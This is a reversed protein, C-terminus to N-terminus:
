QLPIGNYSKIMSQNIPENMWEWTVMKLNKNNFVILRHVEWGPRHHLQAARQPPPAPDDPMHMEVNVPYRCM